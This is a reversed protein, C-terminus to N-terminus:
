EKKGAQRFTLNYRYDSNIPHLGTNMPHIGRYCLRSEGGWVVVDGHELLFRKLPDNRKLG